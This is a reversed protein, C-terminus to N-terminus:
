GEYNSRYTLGLENCTTAEHAAVNSNEIVLQAARGGKTVVTTGGWKSEKVVAMSPSDLANTAQEFLTEFRSPDDVWQVAHGLEHILSIGLPLTTGSIILPNDVNLIVFGGDHGGEKNKFPPVYMSDCGSDLVLVGFKNSAEELRAFIYKATKSGIVEAKCAAYREAANSVPSLGQVSTKIINITM